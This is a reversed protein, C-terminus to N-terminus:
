VNRIYIAFLYVAELHKIVILKPKGEYPVYFSDEVFSLLTCQRLIKWTVLDKLFFLFSQGGRWLKLEQIPLQLLTGTFQLHCPLFSRSVCMACCCEPTRGCLWPSTWPWRNMGSVSQFMNEVCLPPEQFGCITFNKPHCRISHFYLPIPAKCFTVMASTGGPRPGMIDVSISPTKAFRMGRSDRHAATAWQFVVLPSTGTRAITGKKIFHPSWGSRKTKLPPWESTQSAPFSVWLVWKELQAWAAQRNRGPTLSQKSSRM